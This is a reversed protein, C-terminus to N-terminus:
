VEDPETDYGGCKPCKVEFTSKGLKKRFRAGCENCLMRTGVAEAVIDESVVKTAGIVVTTEDSLFGGTIRFLVGDGQREWRVQVPRYAPDGGEKRHHFEAVERERLPGRGNWWEGGLGIELAGDLPHWIFDLLGKTAAIRLTSAFGENVARDLQEILHRM